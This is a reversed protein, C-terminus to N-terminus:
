SNPSEAANRNLWPRMSWVHEFAPSVYHYQTGDANTVTFVDRIAEALERFKSDHEPVQHRSRRLAASMDNFAIALQGIEDHSGVEIHTELDGGGIKCTADKLQALRRNLPVTLSLSLAVALGIVVIVGAPVLKVALATLSKETAVARILDSAAGKQFDLSAYLLSRTAGDIRKLQASSTPPAVRSPLLPEIAVWDRRAAEAARTM